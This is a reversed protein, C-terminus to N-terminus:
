PSLQLFLLFCFHGGGRGKGGMGNEVIWAQGRCLQRSFNKSFNYPDEAMWETQCSHAKKYSFSLISM